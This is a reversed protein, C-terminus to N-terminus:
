GAMRLLKCLFREALRIRPRELKERGNYREISAQVRAARKCGRQGNVLRQQGVGEGRLM